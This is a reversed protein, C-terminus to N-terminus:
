LKLPNRNYSSVIKAFKNYYLMNNGIYKQYM